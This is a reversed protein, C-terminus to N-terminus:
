RVQVDDQMAPGGYYRFCGILTPRWALRARILTLRVPSTRQRAESAWRLVPFSWDFHTALRARILAEGDLKSESIGRINAGGKRMWRRGAVGRGGRVWGQGEGQNYAAQGWFYVFFSRVIKKTETEQHCIQEEWLSKM